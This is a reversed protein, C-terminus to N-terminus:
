KRILEKLETFNKILTTNPSDFDKLENYLDLIIVKQSAQKLPEYFDKDVVSYVTVLTCDNFKGSSFIDYIHNITGLYIVRNNYRNLLFTLYTLAPMIYNETPAFTLYCSGNNTNKFKLNQWLIRTVQNHAFNMQACTAVDTLWLLGVKKLFPFIVKEAADEIGKNIVENIITQELFDQNFDTVALMLQEIVLSQEENTLKFNLVIEQLRHLPLKAIESIKMGNRYLIVIMLLKKVQQEDYYRINTETRKPTLINYRKEWIRITHAKINTIRELDKITYTKNM